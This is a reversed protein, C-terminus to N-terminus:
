NIRPATNTDTNDTDIILGGTSGTSGTSGTNGTNGTNDTGTSGTGKYSSDYFSIKYIYLGDKLSDKVKIKTVTSISDYKSFTGDAYSINPKSTDPSIKTDGTDTTTHMKEISIISYKLTGLVNGSLDKAFITSDITFSSPENSISSKNLDITGAFVNLDLDHYLTSLVETSKVSFNSTDIVDYDRYYYSLLPEPTPGQNGTNGQPGQNGTQTPM